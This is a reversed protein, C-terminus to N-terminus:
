VKLGHKDAYAKIVRVDDLFARTRESCHAYVFADIAKDIEDPNAMANVTDYETKRFLKIADAMEAKFDNPYRIM